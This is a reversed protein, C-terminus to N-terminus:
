EQVSEAAQIGFHDFAGPLLRHRTGDLEILEVVSGGAQRPVVEGIATAVGSLHMVERAIADWADPPATFLLEYDEGGRLALDLWDAPFLARV